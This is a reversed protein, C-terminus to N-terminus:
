QVKTKWFIRWRTEKKIRVTEGDARMRKALDRAAERRSLSTSMRHWKRPKIKPLPMQGSNV